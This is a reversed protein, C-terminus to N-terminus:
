EILEAAKLENLRYILSNLPKHLLQAIEATTRNGDILAFVQRHDRSVITNASISEGRRTRRPTKGFWNNQAGMNAKSDDERISYFRDEPETVPSPKVLSANTSPLPLFTGPSSSPEELNWELKGQHANLLWRLAENNSLLVQRSVKHYIQCSVVQGEVLGFCGLWPISDQVTPEVILDGSQRSTQMLKLLNALDKTTHM